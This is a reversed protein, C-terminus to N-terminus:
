RHAGRRAFPTELVGDALREIEAAERKMMEVVEALRGGTLRPTVAAVSLAAVAEGDARRVPVAVGSMGPILWGDNLAYGHARARAAAETLWDDDVGFKLRRDRDEAVIEAYAAEPLFALLALSGAGVGLPRRDGVALTLTKIPYRGERRDVCVSDRGSLLSFYVTDGTDLCLRELSADAYPALGYRGTAAAAWGILRLGLFYRNGHQDVFGHRLMGALLRHVTASGLGTAEAVDTLRLGGDRAAALAIMVGAARGINQHEGKEPVIAQM